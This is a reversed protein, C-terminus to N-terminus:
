AIYRYIVFSDDNITKLLKKSVKFKENREDGNSNLGFQKGIKFYKDKTIDNLEIIIMETFYISHPTYRADIQDFKPKKKWDWEGQDKIFNNRWKVMEYKNTIGPKKEHLYIIFWIKKYKELAEKLKREDNLLTYGYGECVAKLDGIFHYKPSQFSLDLGKNKYENKVCQNNTTAIYDIYMSPNDHLYESYKAEVIWGNWLNQKWNNFGTKDKLSKMYLISDKANIWKKFPIVNNTVKKIEDLVPNTTSKINDFLTKLYEYKITKIINKNKDTKEFYNNEFGKYLDNLFVHCSYQSKKGSKTCMKKNKHKRLYSDPEFIGWIKTNKYSYLGMWLVTGYQIFTNYFDRWDVNYQIRKLDKPHQGEKGGMFTINAIRLYIKSGDLCKYCGTVVRQNKKFDFAEFDNGLVEFLYNIIEQKSKVEDIAYETVISSENKYMQLPTVNAM